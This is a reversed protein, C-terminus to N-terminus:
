PRRRTRGDPKQLNPPHIERVGDSFLVELVEVTHGSSYHHIVWGVAMGVDGEGVVGRKIQVLDGPNM